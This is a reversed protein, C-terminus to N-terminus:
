RRSGGAQTPVTSSELQVLEERHIPDSYTSLAQGMVTIRYLIDSEESSIM